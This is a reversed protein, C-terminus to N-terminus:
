CEEGTKLKKWDRLWADRSQKSEDLFTYVADWDEALLYKKVDDLQREFLSLADLLNQKNHRFIELWMQPSSSAIRSFDRFGGATGYVVDPESLFAKAAGGALIHLVHSTKAVLADHAQPTLREIRCGLANWMMEVMAMADRCTDAQPTTFVVADDYLNPDVAALGSKESGAMPHSGVFRVGLDALIKGASSVIDEKVSGVDTVVSGAKWFLKNEECFSITVGVPLCVVTLDAKPLVSKSSTAGGDIIEEKLAAQLTEERRAWGLVRFGRQKLAAALSAGM